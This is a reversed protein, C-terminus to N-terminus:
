PCSLSTTKVKARGTTSVNIEKAHDDGRSDCHLFKGATGTILGNAQYSVSATSTFSSSTLTNIGRFGEQINLIEEGDDIDGDVDDDVFVIWGQQWDASAACSAGDSSSCLTVTVNRKSAESRALLLSTMLTNLQSTQKNNKVLTQYSPVGISVLIGAILLVILMEILTFGNFKKM